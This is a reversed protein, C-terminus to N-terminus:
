GFFFEGKEKPFRVEKANLRKSYIESTDMKELEEIDAVVIDCIRGGRDIRTPPINKALSEQWIPPAKVPRKCFDSSKRRHLGEFPETFRKEYPTKGDALLDQVNRLYTYCEM